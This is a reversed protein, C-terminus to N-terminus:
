VLGLILSYLKKLEDFFICTKKDNYNFFQQVTYYLIADRIHPVNIDLYSDQEGVSSNYIHSITRDDLDKKWFLMTSKTSKIPYLKKEHALQNLRQM